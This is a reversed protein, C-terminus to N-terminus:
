NVKNGQAFIRGSLVPISRGASLITHANEQMSRYAALTSNVIDLYESHMRHAPDVVDLDRFEDNTYSGHSQIPLPVFVDVCYESCLKLMEPLERFNDRQVIFCVIISELTLKRRLARVFDLSKLMDDWRLGRRLKELTQPTAGDISLHLTKILKATEGLEDWTRQTVLKTNSLLKIKLNPYKLPDIDKLVSRFHPSALAEGTQSLELTKAQLLLPPLLDNIIENYFNTTKQDALYVKGRCSPCSLNCSRDYALVINSPGRDLVATNNNIIMKMYPDNVDARRPLTNHVLFPCLLENCYRFSGDLISHRFDQAQQSNWGFDKSFVVPAWMSCLCLTFGLPQRDQYSFINLFVFPASCFRDSYHAKIRTNVEPNTSKRHLDRRTAMVTKSVCLDYARLRRAEAAFGAAKHLEGKDLLTQALAAYNLYNLPDLPDAQTLLYLFHPSMAEGACLISLSKLLRVDFFSNQPNGVTRFLPYDVDVIDTSKLHNILRRIAGPLKNFSKSKLAESWAAAYTPWHLEIRDIFDSFAKDGETSTLGMSLRTPVNVGVQFHKNIQEFFEAETAPFLGGYGGLSLLNTV